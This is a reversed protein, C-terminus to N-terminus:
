REFVVPRIKLICDAVSSLSGFVPHFVRCLPMRKNNFVGRREDKVLDFNLGLVVFARSRVGFYYGCVRSLITLVTGVEMTHSDRLHAYANLYPLAISTERVTLTDGTNVKSLM